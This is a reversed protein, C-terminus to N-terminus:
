RRAQQFFQEAEDKTVPHPWCALHLTTIQKHCTEKCWPWGNFWGFESEAGHHGCGRCAFTKTRTTDSEPEPDYRDPDLHRDFNPFGWDTM